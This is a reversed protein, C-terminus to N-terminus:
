AGEKKIEFILSNAAEVLLLDAEPQFSFSSIMM